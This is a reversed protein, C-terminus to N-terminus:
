KKWNRPVHHAEKHRKWPLLAGLTAWLGQRVDAPHPCPLKQTRVVRHPAALRPESWMERCIRPYFRSRAVTGYQLRCRRAHSCGTRGEVGVHAPGTRRPPANGRAAPNRKGYTKCLATCSQQVSFFTRERANELFNESVKSIDVFIHIIKHDM